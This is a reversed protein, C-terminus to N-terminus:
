PRDAGWPVERRCTRRESRSPCRSACWDRWWVSEALLSFRIRGDWCTPSRGRRWRPRQRDRLEGVPRQNGDCAWSGPDGQVAAGPGLSPLRLLRRRDGRSVPGTGRDIRRARRGPLRAGFRDFRGGDDLPSRFSREPVGVSDRARRLLPVHSLRDHDGGCARDRPRPQDADRPGSVGARLFAHPLACCEHIAPDAERQRGVGDVERFRGEPVIGRDPPEGDRLLDPGGVRSRDPVRPLRRATRDQELVGM